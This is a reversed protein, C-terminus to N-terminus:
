RVAPRAVCNAFVTAASNLWRTGDAASVQQAIDRVYDGRYGNSPFTLTEGNLELYRLYTSTALIAMQRGADNVYYGRQVDFGAADLLNAVTMGYAAGRGHGVHLASTPNASVFEVQLSQGLRPARGYETGQQLIDNFILFDSSGDLFFNIFGPGAIEIKTILKSAPLAAVIAEAIERPKRGAAKASMLAVNTAWDGHAKDRTRELQISPAFDAPLVQTDRLQTLANQLLRELAHKM